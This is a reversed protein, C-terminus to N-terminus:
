VRRYERNRNCFFSRYYKTCDIGRGGFNSCFWLRSKVANPLGPDRERRNVLSFRYGRRIWSKDISEWISIVPWRLACLRRQGRRGHASSHKRFPTPKKHPTTELHGVYVTCQTCGALATGVTENTHFRGPFHVRCTCCGDRCSRDSTCWGRFLWSGELIPPSCPCRFDKIRAVRRPVYAPKARNRLSSLKWRATNYATKDSDNRHM